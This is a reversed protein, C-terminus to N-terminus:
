KTKRDYRIIALLMSSIGLTETIIGSISLVYVDYFLWMFSTPLVLRRVNKANDMWFGITSLVMAIIPLFNIYTSLQSFDFNAATLDLRGNFTLIGLLAYATCVIYLWLKKNAWPHEKNMFIFGRAIGVIHMVCGTRAGIMLFHILMTVSTLLQYFCISKQTKQQFSLLVLIPAILGIIQGTAYVPESNLFFDFISLPM